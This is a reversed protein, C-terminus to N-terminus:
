PIIDRLLGAQERQEEAVVASETQTGLRHDRKAAEDRRFAVAEAAAHAACDAGFVTDTAWMAANSPLNYWGDLADWSAAEHGLGLDDVTVRGDAFLEAVCVADRNTEVIAPWIRRCCAVAFLRFKRSCQNHRM